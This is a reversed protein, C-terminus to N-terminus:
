ILIMKNLELIYIIPILHLYSQSLMKNPREVTINEEWNGLTEM